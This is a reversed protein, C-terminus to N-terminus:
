ISGAGIVVNNGITTNMLIISGWGVFVNDGITVKGVKTYGISKKLTADHTLIKVGSLTVNDGISILYPFILDISSNILDFHNGVHGGGM